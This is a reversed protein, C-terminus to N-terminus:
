RVKRLHYYYTKPKISHQQCWEQVSLGSSKQKEIQREWEQLRVNKKVMAIESATKEM